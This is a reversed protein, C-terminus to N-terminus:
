DRENALERWREPPARFQGLHRPQPPEWRDPREKDAPYCRVMHEAGRRLVETISWEQSRAVRKVEAYLPDPLQVQTRKM